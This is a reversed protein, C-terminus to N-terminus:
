LADAEHLTCAVILSRAQGTEDREMRLCILSCRDFKMALKAGAAPAWVSRAYAGVWDSARDAGDAAGVAADLWRSIRDAAAREAAEGVAEDRAPPGSPTCDDAAPRKEADQSRAPSQNGHKRRVHEAM